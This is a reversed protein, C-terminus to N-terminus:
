LKPICMFCYNKKIVSEFPTMLTFFNNKWAKISQNNGCPPAMFVGLQIIGSSEFKLPLLTLSLSRCRFYHIIHIQHKIQIIQDCQTSLHILFYNKMMFCSKQLINSMNCSMTCQMTCTPCLQKRMSFSMNYM